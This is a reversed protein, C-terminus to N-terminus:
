PAYRELGRVLADRSDIGFWSRGDEGWGIWDEVEDIASREVLSRLSGGGDLEAEADGAWAAPYLACTVQMVGRDIPVVARQGDWRGRLGRLTQPRVFPHDVAVALVSGEGAIRLATALGALPGLRGPRDDAVGKLGAPVETRGVVLVTDAARSLAEAVATIMPRGAVMVWAKDTGM